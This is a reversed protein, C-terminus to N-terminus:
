AQLPDYVSMDDLDIEDVYLKRTGYGKRVTGLKALRKAKRKAEKEALEKKVKLQNTWELLTNEDLNKLTFEREWEPTRYVVHNVQNFDSNQMFCLDRITRSFTKILLGLMYLGLLLVFNFVMEDICNISKNCHYYFFAGLKPVVYSYTKNFHIPGYADSFLPLHYSTDNFPLSINIIQNWHELPHRYFRGKIWSTFIISPFLFVISYAFLRFTLSREHYKYLRHNERETLYPSVFHFI